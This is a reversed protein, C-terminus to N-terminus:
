LAGVLTLADRGLSASRPQVDVPRGDLLCATISLTFVSADAGLHRNYAVALDHTLRAVDHAKASALTRLAHCEQPHLVGKLHDDTLLKAKHLLRLVEFVNEQATLDGMSPLRVALLERLGKQYAQALSDLAAHNKVLMDVLARTVERMVRPALTTDGAKLNILRGLWQDVIRNQFPRVGKVKISAVDQILSLVQRKVQESQHPDTIALDFLRALVQFPVKTHPGGQNVLLHRAVQDDLDIRFLLETILEADVVPVSRRAASGAIAGLRAFVTMVQEKTYFTFDPTAAHQTGLAVLIDQRPTFSFILLHVLTPLHCNSSTARALM